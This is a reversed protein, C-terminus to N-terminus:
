FVMISIMFVVSAVIWAIICYGMIDKMELRAMALLPIAFFPQIMNAINEGATFARLTDAFPVGLKAAADMMIPGQVMLIGGASPIFFNVISASVFTWLPYTAVTSIAVFWGSIIAVLGSAGMMGQIGAYFPFQLVVGWSLKTGEAFATYFRRPTGHLAFGLFLMAFNFIDLNLNFGKTAFWYVVYSLGALSIIMCILWSDEIRSAFTKAKVPVYDAAGFATSTDAADGKRAKKGELKAKEAAIEQEFAAVVAADLPQIESEEPHFLWWLVPLILFSCLLTPLLVEIHFSTQSIPILGIKKELFHGPTNVILTETVTLGYCGSCWGVYASAVLMKYNIKPINRGLKPALIAGAVLGLGWHFWALASVVIGIFIVAALSSKPITALWTLIKNGIPTVALTYGTVIILVMQMSFALFGWFGKYWFQIMEFLGKGAITMGMIFIIFTLVIAFLFCDPV